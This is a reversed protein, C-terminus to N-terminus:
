ASRCSTAAGAGRSPAADLQGEAPLGRPQVDRRRVHRRRARLGAHAAATETEDGGANAGGIVPVCALQGPPFRDARLPRAGAPRRGHVRQGRPPRRVGRDARSSFASTSASDPHDPWARCTPSCPRGTAPPSGCTSGTSQRGPQVRARLGARRRPRAHGRRRIAGRRGRGAVGCGRGHGDAVGGRWSRQGTILSAMLLAEPRYRLAAPPSLGTRM